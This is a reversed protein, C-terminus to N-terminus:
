MAGTNKLRQTEREMRANWQGVTEYVWFGSPGEWVSVSLPCGYRPYDTYTVVAYDRRYSPALGRFKLLIDQISEFPEQFYLRNTPQNEYEIEEESIKNWWHKSEKMYGYDGTKIWNQRAEDFLKEFYIKQKLIRCSNEAKSEVVWFGEEYIGFFEKEVIEGEWTVFVMKDKSRYQLSNEWSESAIEVVQGTGGREIEEESELVYTDGDIEIERAGSEVDEAAKVLDAAFEEGFAGTKSTVVGDEIEYVMGGFDFWTKLKNGEKKKDNL